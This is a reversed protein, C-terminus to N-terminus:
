KKRYSQGFNAPGGRAFNFIKFDADPAPLGGRRGRGKLEVGGGGGVAGRGPLSPRPTMKPTNEKVSTKPDIVSEVTNDAGADPDGLIIDKAEEIQQRLVPDNAMRERAARMKSQREPNPPM